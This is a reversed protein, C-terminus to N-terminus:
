SVLQSVFGPFGETSCRASSTQTKAWDGLQRYESTKATQLVGPRKQPTIPRDRLRSDNLAKSQLRWDLAETTANSTSSPLMEFGTCGRTAHPPTVSIHIVRRHPKSLELQLDLSLCFPDPFELLLHGALFETEIKPFQMAQFRMVCLPSQLRGM